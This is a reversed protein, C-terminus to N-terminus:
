VIAQKLPTLIHKYLTEQATAHVLNAMSRLMDPLEEGFVRMRAKIVPVMVKVAEKLRGQSCYTVALNGMSTLSDPHKEGLV